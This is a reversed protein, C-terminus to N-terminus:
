ARLNASAYVVYAESSATANTCVIILEKAQNQAITMTSLATGGSGAAVTIAEANDATNRYITRIRDGVTLGFAAVLDDADPLTAASAGGAPDHQIYGGLATLPIAYAGATTYETSPGAEVLSGTVRFGEDFDVLATGDADAAQVCIGAVYDGESLATAAIGKATDYEAVVRDGVALGGTGATVPQVGRDAYEALGTTAAGVVVVHPRVKQALAQTTFGDILAAQKNGDFYVLLQESTSLDESPAASMYNVLNKDNDGAIFAGM